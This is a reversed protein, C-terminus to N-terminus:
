DKTNFTGGWFHLMLPFKEFLHPMGWEWLSFDSSYIFLPIVVIQGEMTASFSSELLSFAGPEPWKPLLGQPESPSGEGGVPDWSQICVLVLRFYPGAWPHYSMLPFLTSILDRRTHVSSAVIGKASFVRIRPILCPDIDKGGGCLVSCENHEGVPLIFACNQYGYPLSGLLEQSWGWLLKSLYAFPTGGGWKPSLYATSRMRLITNRWTWIFPVKNLHGPWTFGQPSTWLWGVSSLDAVSLLYPIHIEKRLPDCQTIPM